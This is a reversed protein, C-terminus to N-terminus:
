AIVGMAYKSKARLECFVVGFMCVTYTFCFTYLFYYHPSINQMARTMYLILYWQLLRASINQACQRIKMSIGYFQSQYGSVYLLNGSTGNCLKSFIIITFFIGRINCM